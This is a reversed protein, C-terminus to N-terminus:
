VNDDARQHAAPPETALSPLLGPLGGLLQRQSGQSSLSAASPCGHLGGPQQQQQQRQQLQHQQQQGQQQQHRSSPRHSSGWAAMALEAGAATPTNSASLDGVVDSIGSTTRGSLAAAAVLARRSMLAVDQQGPAGSAGSSGGSSPRGAVGSGVVPVATGPVVAPGAAPSASATQRYSKIYGEEAEEGQKVADKFAVM